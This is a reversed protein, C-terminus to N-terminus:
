KDEPPFAKELERKFVESVGGQPCKSARNRLYSMPQTSRSLFCRVHFIKGVYINAKSGCHHTGWTYNMNYKPVCMWKPAGKSKTNGNSNYYNKVHIEEPPLDLSNVKTKSDIHSIGIARFYRIHTDGKRNM